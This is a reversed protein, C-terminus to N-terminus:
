GFDAAAGKGLSREGDGARGPKAVPILVRCGRKRALWLEDEPVDM